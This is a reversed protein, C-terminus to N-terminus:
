LKFALIKGVTLLKVSVNKTGVPTEYPLTPSAVIVDAVSPVAGLATEIDKHRISTPWRQPSAPDRKQRLGADFPAAVMEGPGLTGMQTVLPTVLDQLADSWPCMRENVTPVYSTDTANTTTDCAIAWPGSGTVTAIRKPVFLGTSDNYFAISQGVQPATPSAADSDVSFHTADTVASVYFDDAIVPWPQADAWGTTGAWLVKVKFDTPTDVIACAFLGDDGPLEGTIHALIEAIDASSPARSGGVSSPRMTFAYATTGPGATCPFVFTEQLPIGLAAAAERVFRRVAAANGSAAPNARADEIRRLLEPDTEQERGGKLGNGDPDALVTATPKIGIPTTTWRLVSGAPLNTAPGTDVGRIPVPNGDFYVKTARCVYRFGTREDKLEAGALILGGGASAGITVFGLGGAAPLRKPIGLGEAETELGASTKDKLAVANGAAAADAFVPLLTDAVVSGDIHVRSGPRTDVDPKRLKYDRLWRTLLVDRTPVFFDGKLDSLPM